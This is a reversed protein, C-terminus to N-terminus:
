SMVTRFIEQGEELKKVRDTLFIRQRRAAAPESVMNKVEADAMKVVILPSFIDHLGRIMHREIVQTTVNAIFTKQQVKYIALLCDLSEECSFEEMDATVSQGWDSVAKRVYLEADARVVTGDGGVTRLVGKPAKKMIQDQIRNQRKKHVTDTYYHNYNIPFDKRDQLLKDLEESAAKLHRRLAPLVMSAWIRSKINKPVNSDLLTSIFDECLKRVTEIYDRSLLDWAESQEWFLEAILNPNFTGLLETGRSRQLMEGVWSLADTKSIVKPTPKSTRQKTETDVTDTFSIQYKHGRQRFSDAFSKNSWQIVARLRQLPIKSTPVVTTGDQFWVHEYHGSVGAKCLEYCKMNLQAMFIRCEAVTARSEGLLTLDHAASKLASELDNQLRPLENKIHEFLLQSLKVRLADIGVNEKPLVKFNSTDFYEKESHNRQNISFNMEEFKRNKVVHWGLSFFVDENRALELFKAESGSGKSLLDSKTIVGLTREGQPDFKRVRRLISQNAADNTASVVALCITRPQKIYHDTIESIMAVDDDSVGKTASHILGPIDVLTLQPRNPGQIDISLTDRAIASAGETIGMTEMAKGMLAPLVKFDTISETFNRMKEQEARPRTEDPIIKVTIASTPERRLSIETAFRTCINDSRPFPIETLAELVSSKGSSQDGCVVIQPLSLISELGCKRVQSVVDLVRRQEDTQLEELSTTDAMMSQATSLVESSPSSPDPTTTRSIVRSGPYSDM